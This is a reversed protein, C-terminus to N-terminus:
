GPLDSVTLFNPGEGSVESHEDIVRTRRRALSALWSKTASGAAAASSRRIQHLYQRDCLGRAVM